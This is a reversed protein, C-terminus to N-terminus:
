PLPIYKVVHHGSIIFNHMFNM